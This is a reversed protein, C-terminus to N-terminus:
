LQERTKEIHKSITKYIEKLDDPLLELHKELTQRDGRIAPGTQSRGPGEQLAKDTTERLLAHFISFDLDKERAIQEGITWMHNAFNNVFVAALHLYKKQSDDIRHVSKGIKEATTKLFHFDVQDNAEIFIPINDWDISRNSSFTQLPYFYGRRDCKLADSNLVGSTHTVLAKTNELLHAIESVSDDNVSVIIWQDERALSEIHPAVAGGIESCLKQAREPTRNYVERLIFGKEVLRRALSVGVKGCGILSFQHM